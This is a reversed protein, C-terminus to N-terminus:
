PVARWGFRWTTGGFAGSHNATARVSVLSNPPITVTHTTDQCANSTTAITCQLASDAGNVRLAASVDFGPGLAVLIRVSLDRATISAGAPTLTQVDGETLVNKSAGSPTGFYTGAGLDDLIVGTNVSGAPDGPAGTDGKPGQPGTPGAPGRKVKKKAKTSQAGAPHSVVQTGAYATGTLAIFLAVLGIHHERVYRIVRM